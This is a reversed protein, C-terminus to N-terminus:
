GAPRPPRLLTNIFSSCLGCTWGVPAIEGLINAIIRAAAQSVRPSLGIGPETTEPEVGIITLREPVMDLKKAASLTEVVGWDHLSLVSSAESEDDFDAVSDARWITGPSKGASVADVLIVRSYKPFEAVFDFLSTGAEIVVVSAPLSPESAILRAVHVGVGEDSLLENGVGIVLTAGATEVL